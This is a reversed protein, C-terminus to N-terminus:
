RVQIDSWSTRGISRSAAYTSAWRSGSTDSVRSCNRIFGRERPLCSITRCVRHRRPCDSTALASATRRCRSGSGSFRRDGFTRASPTFMTPASLSSRMRSSTAGTAQDSLTVYGSTGAAFTFSGLSMWEGSSAQCEDVRIVQTGIASTVAFPADPARNTAGDPLRYYVVYRGAEPLMPTWRVWNIGTGGSARVSYNSGHYNPRSTSVNWTGASSVTDNDVIVEGPVVQVPAAVFKVADATVYTGSAKDTLEVFRNHGFGFSVHGLLRWEVHSTRENVTVATAGAAHHATFAANSARDPAGNPLRCYVGVTRGRDCAPAMCYPYAREGISSLRRRGTPADHKPTIRGSTSSARGNEM